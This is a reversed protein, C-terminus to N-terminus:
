RGGTIGNIVRDCVEYMEHLAADADAARSVYLAAEDLAGFLVHATPRLPQDPIVGDAMAQALMAEIVGLGYKMGVERWREWGLVAPADILVIRQVDPASCEALFLRAGTRMAALQDVPETAVIRASIRTVLDREVEEYVEAFLGSKDGFQHYLAGRTVGAADVIAQTPVAAYGDAAFLQRGADLLRARTAATREAQTRRAAPRDNVKM